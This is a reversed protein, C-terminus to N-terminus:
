AVLNKKADKLKVRRTESRQYEIGELLGEAFSSLDRGDPLKMTTTVVDGESIVLTVSKDLKPTAIIRTEDLKHRRFVKETLM